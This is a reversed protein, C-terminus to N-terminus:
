RSAPQTAPMTFVESTRDQTELTRRLQDAVNTTPGSAPGTRARQTAAAERKRFEADWREVAQRLAAPPNNGGVRVAVELQLRAATINGVDMMLNALAVRADVFDPRLEIASAFQAAAAAMLKKTKESPQTSAQRTAPMTATATTAAAAAAAAPRTVAVVVAVSTTTTTTTTAQTTAGQSIKALRALVTGYEYRIQPDEPLIRVAEAYQRAAQELDGKQVAIKGLFQYIAAATNRSIAGSGRQAQAAALAANFSAQAEDLRGLEFMARGRGGLADVNDPRL